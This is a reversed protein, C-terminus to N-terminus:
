NNEDNVAAPIMGIGGNKGPLKPANIVTADIRNSAPGQDFVNRKVITLEFQTSTSIYLL